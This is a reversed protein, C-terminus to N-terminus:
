SPVAHRLERGTSTNIVCVPPKPAPVIFYISVLESGRTSPERGTSTNMVCTLFALYLSGFFLVEVVRLAHRPERSTSTVLSARRFQKAPVFGSKETTWRFVSIKSQLVTRKLDQWVRYLFFDWGVAFATLRSKTSTVLSSSAAEADRVCREVM